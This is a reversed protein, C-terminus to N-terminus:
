SRAGFLIDELIRVSNSLKQGKALGRERIHPLWQQFAPEPLQGLLCHSSRM